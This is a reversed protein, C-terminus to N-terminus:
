KIYLYILGMTKVIKLARGVWSLSEMVVRSTKTTSEFFNGRCVPSLMYLFSRTVKPWWARVVGYNRLHLNVSITVEHTFIAGHLSEGRPLTQEIIKCGWASCPAKAFEPHTLVCLSLVLIKLSAVTKILIFLVCVVRYCWPQLHLCLKFSVEAQGQMWGCPHYLLCCPISSM